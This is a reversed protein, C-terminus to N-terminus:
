PSADVVASTSRNLRRQLDLMHRKAHDYHSIDAPINVKVVEVKVHMSM